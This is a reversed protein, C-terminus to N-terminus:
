KIPGFEKRSLGLQRVIARVTGPPLDKSGWDPVPAVQGTELNQWYRHSGKAARLQHCGLKKLRKALERYRM